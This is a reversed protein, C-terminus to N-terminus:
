GNTHPLISPVRQMALAPYYIVWMREFVAGVDDQLRGADSQRWWKAALSGMADSRSQGPREFVEADIMKRYEPRVAMWMTSLGLGGAFLLVVIAWHQLRRPNFVEFMVAAGMIIPDRFGAFYGTLGIGVELGILAGIWVWRVTPRTMRRLLIFLAALHVLRMALIPQTFDPHEFAFEQLFGQAVLSGAWLALLSSWRISLEKGHNVPSGHWRRITGMGIRIGGVLALVCGLGVLVMPRYDSLVMADLQRGTAATYWLGATVQVWQFTLAMALVPLGEDDRMYKWIIWLVVLASGAIWDGVFVTAALFVLGVLFLEGLRWTREGPGALSSDWSADIV